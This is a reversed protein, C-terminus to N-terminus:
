ASLRDMFTVKMLQTQVYVLLLFFQHGSCWLQPRSDCLAKLSLMLPVQTALPSAAAELLEKVGTANRVDLFLMPPLFAEPSPGMDETESYRSPSRSLPQLVSTSKGEPLDASARCHCSMNPPPM